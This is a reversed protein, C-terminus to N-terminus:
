GGASVDVAASFVYNPDGRQALTKALNAITREPKGRYAEAGGVTVVVEGDLDAMADNLLVTIRRVGDMTLAVEARSGSSELDAEVLSKAKEQGKEVSLWYFQGRTINDQRWVVRTPYPDRTFEAMWPVAKADELNMWHGYQPYVRVLHDYGGPDDKKLEALRKGWRAAIQNRKYAADRGGVQLIFGINRLGLPSADGPHGAMMAAAAWRDAMRPALQYTGDGGASYGMVYVRNPNVGELVILDEILRDFLKGVPPKHWLNWTNGPARPALYIGEAPKYLRKQNEWQQDNMRAPGNGGGHMSLYLSRGAQPKKGFVRFDFPMVANGIKIRKAEIAQARTERVHRKHREWLVDGAKAADSKSLAVGAFPQEAVAGPDGGATLYAQLEEVPGGCASPSASLTFISLAAIAVTPRCCFARIPRPAPM